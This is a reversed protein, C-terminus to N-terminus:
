KTFDKQCFFLFYLICLFNCFKKRVKRLKKKLAKDLCEYSPTGKKM